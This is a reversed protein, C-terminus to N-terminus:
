QPKNGPKYALSCLMKYSHPNYSYYEHPRFWCVDSPPRVNCSKGLLFDWSKQNEDWARGRCIVAADCPKPRRSPSAWRPRRPRPLDEGGIQSPQFGILLPFYIPFIHHNIPFIHFAGIRNMTFLAPFCPFLAPGPLGPTM